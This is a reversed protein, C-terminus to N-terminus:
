GPRHCVTIDYEMLDLAYREQRRSRLDTKTLLHSVSINDTVVLVKSGYLYHRWMRVAWVVCAGELDNIHYNKEADSVARSAYCVPREVGEDDVQCLCAGLGSESADCLVVWSRNFDPFVLTPATVLSAKLATLARDHEAQWEEGIVTHKNPYSTLLSRLPETISAFHPVFRRLFSAAGLVTKLDSVKQPRQMGVVASVKTQDVSIGKKADVTFGLFM